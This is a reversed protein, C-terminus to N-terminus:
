FSRFKGKGDGFVNYRFCQRFEITDPAGDPLPSFAPATEVAKLAAEDSLQLGCTKALRLDSRSGNRKVKFLLVPEVGETCKPPFWVKKISGQTEAAWAELDVDKFGVTTLKDSNCLTIRLWTPDNLAKPPAPLKKLHLFFRRGAEESVTDAKPIAVFEMRGLLRCKIESNTAPAVEAEEISGSGAIRVDFCVPRTFEQKDHWSNRLKSYVKRCFKTKPGQDKISDRQLSDKSFAPQSCSFGVVTLVFLRLLLNM